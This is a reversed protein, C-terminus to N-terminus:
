RDHAADFKTSAMTQVFMASFAFVEVTVIVYGVKKYGSIRLIRDSSNHVKGIQFGTALSPEIGM